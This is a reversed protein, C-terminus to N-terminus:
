RRQRPRTTAARRTCAASRCRRLRNPASPASPRAPPTPPSPAPGARADRGTTPESGPAPGGLHCSCGWAAPRGPSCAGSCPSSVGLYTEDCPQIANAFAFCELASAPAPRPPTPVPRTSASSPQMGWCASSPPGAGAPLWWTSRKRGCARGGWGWGLPSVRRWRRAAARARLRPGAVAGPRRGGAEAGGRVGGGGPPPPGTAHALPRGAAHARRRRRRPNPPCPACCALCSRARAQPRLAGTASARRSSRLWTTRTSCRRRSSCSSRSPSAAQRLAAPRPLHLPPRCPRARAPRLAAHAAAAHRPGGHPAAAAAIAEQRAQYGKPGGARGCRAAERDLGQHLDCLRWRGRRGAPGFRNGQRV